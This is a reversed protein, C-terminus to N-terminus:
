SERCPQLSRGHRDPAIEILEGVFAAQGAGMSPCDGELARTSSPASFSSCARASFDAIARAAALCTRVPSTTARPGPVVVSSRALSSLPREPMRM